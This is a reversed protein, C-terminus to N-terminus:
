QLSTARRTVKSLKAKSGLHSDSLIWASQLSRHTSLHSSLHSVHLPHQHAPSLGIRGNPIFVESWFGLAVFHNRLTHSKLLMM